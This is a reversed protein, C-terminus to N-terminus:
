DLKNLDLRALYMIGDDDWVSAYVANDRASYCIHDINYDTRILELPNGDWDFVSIDNFVLTSGREAEASSILEANYVAYLRDNEAYLDRFGLVTRENEVLSLHVADFEPEAFYGMYLRSISDVGISYTELVAGWLTGVAFRSKDPSIALSYTFNYLRYRVADDEIPFYDYSLVTKGTSIEQLTFRRSSSTDAYESRNSMYLIMNDGANQMVRTEAPIELSQEGYAYTGRMLSDINVFLARGKEFDYYSMMGGDLSTNRYGSLSEGPGNGYNIGSCILRGTQKSYIGLERKTQRDYSPVVLVSDYEWIDSVQVYLEGSIIEWRGGREVPFEPARYKSDSCSVSLLMAAAATISTMCVKMNM